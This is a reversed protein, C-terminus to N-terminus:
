LNSILIDTCYEKTGDFSHKFCLAKNIPDGCWSLDPNRGLGKAKIENKFTLFLVEKLDHLEESSNVPFIKYVQSTSIRHCM